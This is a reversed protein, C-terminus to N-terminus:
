RKRTECVGDTPAHCEHQAREDAHEHDDQAQQVGRKAVVVRRQQGPRDQDHDETTKRHEQQHRASEAARQEKCRDCRKQDQDHQEAVHLLAGHLVPAVYERRQDGEQQSGPRCQSRHDDVAQQHPLL